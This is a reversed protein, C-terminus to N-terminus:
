EENENFKGFIVMVVASIVFSLINVIGGRILNETSGGAYPAICTFITAMTMGHVVPQIIAAILGCIAGSLGMVIMNNKTNLGIGYLIPESIGGILGSTLYGLAVTKNEKKKYKILAGLALGYIAWSYTQGIVMVFGESGTSLITAIAPMYVASHMGGITIFPMIAGLIILGLVSLLGGSSGLYTFISALINGIYAGLPACVCFMVPAMIFMTLFPVFVFSLVEPVIKKVGKYVYSMIWVGLIVPFFSQSYDAVPASIGLVTFTDRVGVMNMFGPVIIM